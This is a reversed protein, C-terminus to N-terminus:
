AALLYETVIVWGGIGSIKIKCAIMGQSLLHALVYGGPLIGVPAGATQLGDILRLQWQAAIQSLQQM